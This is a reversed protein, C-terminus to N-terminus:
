GVTINSMKTKQAVAPSGGECGGELSPSQAPSPVVCDGAPKIAMPVFSSGRPPMSVGPLDDALSDLRRAVGPLAAVIPRCALALRIVALAPRAPRSRPGNKTPRRFFTKQTMHREFGPALRASRLFFRCGGGRPPKPCSEGVIPYTV